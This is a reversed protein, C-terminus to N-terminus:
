KITAHRVKYTHRSPRLHGSILQSAIKSGASHFATYRTTRFSDGGTSGGFNPAMTVITVEVGFSSFVHAGEAAVYGGGLIGMSDPLTDIWMITDSTYFDIGAKTVVDPISPRGGTAIVIQEARIVGEGDVTLEHAGAFRARGEFLTVHDADVFRQRGDRSVADIRSAVRNRIAPWDISELAVGVGFQSARRVATALDATGVFMKSPICGRNVCTGGFLGSEILAVTRGDPHEPIVVKGSGSGIVALEFQQVESETSM